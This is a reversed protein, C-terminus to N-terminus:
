EKAHRLSTEKTNLGSKVYKGLLHDIANEQQSIMEYINSITPPEKQSHISEEPKKSATRESKM